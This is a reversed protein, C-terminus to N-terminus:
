LHVALSVAALVGITGALIPLLIEPRRRFVIALIGAVFGVVGCFGPTFQLYTMGVAARGFVIAKVALLFLGALALSTMIHSFVTWRAVILDNGTAKALVRFSLQRDTDSCNDSLFWQLYAATLEGSDPNPPAIPSQQATKSPKAEPPAPPSPPPAKPLSAAFADLPTPM